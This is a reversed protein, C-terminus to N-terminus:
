NNCTTCTTPPTNGSTGGGAVVGVAAGVIIVALGGAVAAGVSVTGIGAGAAAVGGPVAAAGGAAATATGTAGTQAAANQLIGFGALCKKRREEPVRFEDRLSGEDFVYPFVSAQEPTRSEEPILEASEGRKARILECSKRNNTDLKVRDDPGSDDSQSFAITATLMLAVALSLAWMHPYLRRFTM